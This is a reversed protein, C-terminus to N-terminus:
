FMMSSKLNKVEDKLGLSELIAFVFDFTAAPGKGTIINGSTVVLEDKINAGNLYQEFGPYCTIDKDKVVDAEGLVMPAACIACILKEERFFKKIIDIVPANNKLNEAGPMGGPLVLGYYNDENITDIPFDTKVIINHSGTVYEGAISIMDCKVNARRLVDVVSLAEVEEFGPALVVMLKKM